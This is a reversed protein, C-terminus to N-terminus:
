KQSELYNFVEEYADGTLHDLSRRLLDLAKDKDSTGAFGFAKCAACVSSGCPSCGCDKDNCYGCNTGTM